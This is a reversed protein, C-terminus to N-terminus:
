NHMLVGFDTDPIDEAAHILNIYCIDCHDLFAKRSPFYKALGLMLYAIGNVGSKPDYCKGIEEVVERLAPRLHDAIMRGYKVQQHQANCRDDKIGQVGRDPLMRRIKPIKLM